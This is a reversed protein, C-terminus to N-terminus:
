ENINGECKSCITKYWDNVLHNTAQNGCNECIYSSINMAFMIAGDLENKLRNDVNKNEDIIFWKYHFRMTGFKEKIQTVEIQENILHPNNDIMGQVYKCLRYILNYWGDDCTFGYKKSIRSQPDDKQRFIIPFDNYLKNTLKNNM